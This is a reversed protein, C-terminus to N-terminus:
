LKLCQCVRNMESDSLTRSQSNCPPAKNANTMKGKLARNASANEGACHVCAICRAPGADDSTHHIRSYSCRDQHSKSKQEAMRNRPPLLSDQSGLAGNNAIGPVTNAIPSTRRQFVGLVHNM